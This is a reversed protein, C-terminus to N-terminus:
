DRHWHAQFHSKACTWAGGSDRGNVVEHRNAVDHANAIVDIIVCDRLQERRGIGPDTGGTQRRCDIVTGRRLPWQWVTRWPEISASM